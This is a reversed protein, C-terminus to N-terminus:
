AAELDELTIPYVEIEVTGTGDCELCPGYDPPDPDNPHGGLDRGEGNCKFCTVPRTNPDFDTMLTLVAQAQRLCRVRAALNGNGLASARWGQAM